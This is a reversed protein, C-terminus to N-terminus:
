VVCGGGGRGLLELNRGRLKPWAMGARRARAQWIRGLSQEGDLCHGRWTWTSLGIMLFTPIQLFTLIILWAEGPLHGNEDANGRSLAAVRAVVSRVHSVYTAIVILEILRKLSVHQM